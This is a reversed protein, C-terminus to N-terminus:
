PFPPLLLDKLPFGLQCCRLIPWLFTFWRQISHERLEFVVLFLERLVIALSSFFLDFQCGKGLKWSSRRIDSFSGCSEINSQTYSTPSKAEIQFCFHFIYQCVHRATGASHLWHCPHFGVM